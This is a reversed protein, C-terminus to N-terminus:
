QAAFDDLDPPLDDQSAALERLADIVDRPVKQPQQTVGLALYEIALGAEGHDILHHASNLTKPSVIGDLRVVLGLCRDRFREMAAFEEPTPV